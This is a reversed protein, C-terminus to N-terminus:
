CWYLWITLDNPLENLFAIVAKNKWSDTKYNSIALKLDGVLVGLIPNGYPNIPFKGENKPVKKGKKAELEEIIEFLKNDRDLEIVDTSFISKESYEPFIKLDKAM